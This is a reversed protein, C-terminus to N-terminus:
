ANIQTEALLQAGEDISRVAAALGRGAAGSRRPPVGLSQPSARVPGARASHSPPAARSPATVDAPVLVVTADLKLLRFGLVRAVISAEVLVGDPLRRSRDPIATLM